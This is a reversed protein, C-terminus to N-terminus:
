PYASSGGHDGKYLSDVLRHRAIRDRLNGKTYTCSKGPFVAETFFKLPFYSIIYATIATHCGAGTQFSQSDRWLHCRNSCFRHDGGYRRGKYPDGIRYCIKEQNLAMRQILALPYVRYGCQTDEIFQNAALSIFFRAVHMSNYRARPINERSHMRSGVIIHGPNKRHAHVLRHYKMRTTSDMEMWVSSPRIDKNQRKKSCSRSPMERAGTGPSPFSPQGPRYPRKGQATGPVTM